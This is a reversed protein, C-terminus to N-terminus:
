GGNLPLKKEKKREKNEKKKIKTFKLALTVMAGISDGFSFIEKGGIM